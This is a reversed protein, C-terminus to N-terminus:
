SALAIQNPNLIFLLEDERQCINRILTRAKKSMTSPPRELTENELVLVQGIEGVMLGIPGEQTAVIVTMGPSDSGLQPMELGPRPDFMCILNGDVETVGLLNAPAGPVKTLHPVARVDVV